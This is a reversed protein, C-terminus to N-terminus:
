TDAKAPPDQTERRRQQEVVYPAYVLAAGDYVFSAGDIWYIPLAAEELNRQAASEPGTTPSTM